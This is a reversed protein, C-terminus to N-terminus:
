GGAESGYVTKMEKRIDDHLLPIKLGAGTIEDAAQVAIGGGTGFLAVNKGGPAKLRTFVLAMDVLESMSSVQIAGVQKILDRWIYAKGAIASTHSACTRAGSETNGAKNIVVPKKSVAKKLAKLFREGDKIGELYMLIISTDPDDALYELYDSENLDAANGYSIAKSFFLNRSFADRICFICNGGSQSILGVPGPTQPFGTQDPYQTAFTLGGVPNYMGMCNPGILRIGKKRAISLIENELIKGIEDEIESYGSTFLQVARANVLDSDEILQPTFKAPIAAVVLDVPGPIDKINKYIEMGHLQGGSPHVPYIKGKFGFDVLSTAYRQAMNPTSMDPSVGAIAISNPKFVFDLLTRSMSTEMGPPLTSIITYKNLLINM